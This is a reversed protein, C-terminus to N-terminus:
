IKLREIIALAETFLANKSGNVTLENSFLTKQRKIFDKIDVYTKKCIEEIFQEPIPIELIGEPLLVFKSFNPSNKISYFISEMFSIQSNISNMLTYFNTKLEPDLFHENWVMLTRDNFGRCNKFSGRMKGRIVKDQYEEQFTISFPIVRCQLPKSEGHLKCLSNRLQLCRKRFRNGAIFDGIIHFDKYKFTLHQLHREHASDLPYIKRFGITIPFYRYLKGIEELTIITAGGCCLSSCEKICQFYIAKTM